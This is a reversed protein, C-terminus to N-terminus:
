EIWGQERYYRAAGPHLELVAQNPQAGAEPNWKDLPAYTKAIDDRADVLAKTIKYVVDDSLAKNVILLTPSTPNTYDADLGKYSGAPMEGRPMGRKEMYALVTESIPLFVMDNTLTAETMTAQGIPANEIYVDATGDRLMQAIQATEVQIIANKGRLEELNTGLAEFMYNAVIPVQSGTPKLAIRPPKEATVIKDFTDNGTEDVYAKRAVVTTYATQLGGIATRIDKSERGKFEDGLGDRAWVAANSTVIGVDAVGQNVAIPNAMGGGRPMVEVNIKPEGDARSIIEGFTSGYSYWSGGPPQSILKVTEEAQAGVTTIAFTAVALAKFLTNM